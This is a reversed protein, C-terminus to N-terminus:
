RSPPKLGAKGLDSAAIHLVYAVAGRYNAPVETGTVILGGAPTGPVIEADLPRRDGPGLGGRGGQHMQTAALLDRRDRAGAM